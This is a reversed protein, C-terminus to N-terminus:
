NRALGLYEYYGGKSGKKIRPDGLFGSEVLQRLLFPPKWSPDGTAAYMSDLIELRTDLGILDTLEFPGMPHGLGLRAGLDVEKITAIGQEVVSSAEIFERLALRAVIFGPRDKSVVVAKGLKVSIERIAETTENSTMSGNIVEVLPMVQPPVFFHMGVVREPWEVGAAISTISLSSTDSALITERKSLRGLTQFVKKKLELNEDVNEVVLLSKRVASELDTGVHIRAVIEEMDKEAIKGSKVLTRLGFKGNVIQEKGKEFVDLNVDVAEVFYGKQAFLQSLGSGMTGFGVIAVTDLRSAGTQSANFYTLTEVRLLGKSHPVEEISLPRRRLLRTVTAHSDDSTDGFGNPFLPAFGISDVM